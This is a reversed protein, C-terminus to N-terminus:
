SQKNYMNWSMKEENQQRKNRGGEGREKKQRGGRKREKKKEIEFGGQQM